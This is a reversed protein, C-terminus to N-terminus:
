RGNSAQITAQLTAQERQGADSNLDRGTCRAAVATDDGTKCMSNQRCVRKEVELPEM